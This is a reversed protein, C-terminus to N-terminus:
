TRWRKTELRLKTVSYAQHIDQCFAKNLEHKWGVVAKEGDLMPVTRWGLDWIFKRMEEYSIAM